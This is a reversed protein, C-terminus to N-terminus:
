MPCFLKELLFVQVLNSDLSNARDKSVDLNPSVGQTQRSNHMTDLGMDFGPVAVFTVWIILSVQGPHNPDWYVSLAEM